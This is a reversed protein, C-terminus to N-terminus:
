VYNILFWIKSMTTMKTNKFLLTLFDLFIITNVFKFVNIIFNFVGGAVVGLVLASACLGSLFANWKVMRMAEEKGISQVQERVRGALHGRERVHARLGGCRPLAPM